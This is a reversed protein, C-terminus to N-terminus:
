IACRARDTQALRVRRGEEIKISFEDLRVIGSVFGSPNPM